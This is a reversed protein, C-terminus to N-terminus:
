VHARGIQKKKTQDKKSYTPSSIHSMVVNDVIGHGMLNLSSSTITGLFSRQETM